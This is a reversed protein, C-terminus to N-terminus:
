SNLANEVPKAIQLVEAFRLKKNFSLGICYSKNEIPVAWVVTALCKIPRHLGPGDISIELQDGTALYRSVTLRMGGESVDLLEAPTAKTAAPGVKRCDIRITSQPVKRLSRRRTRTLPSTTNM